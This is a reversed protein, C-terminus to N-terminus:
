INSSGSTAFLFRVLLKFPLGSFSIDMSQPIYEPGPFVQSPELWEGTLLRFKSLILFILTIDWWLSYWYLFIISFLSIAFRSNFIIIVLIFNMQPTSCFIQHASSLILMSSSLDIATIKSQHVSHPSSHLFTSLRLSRHSAMLHVLMCIIPASSLLPSLFPFFSNKFFYHGSFKGFKIFIMLICMWFAYHIGLLIFEFLDICWLWFM